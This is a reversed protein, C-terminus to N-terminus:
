CNCGGTTIRFKPVPNKERRFIKRKVIQKLEKIETETDKQIINRTRVPKYYKGRSSKNKIAYILYTKSVKLYNKNEISVIDVMTFKEFRRGKYIKIVEFEVALKVRFYDEDSILPKDLEQIGTIKGIFVYKAKKYTEAVEPKEKSFSILAISLFICLLSIKINPTM